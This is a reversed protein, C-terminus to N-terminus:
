KQHNQHADAAPAKAGSQSMDHGAPMGADAKMGAMGQHMKAMDKGCDMKSNMKECCDAKPAPTPAAQAHAVAPIAITLAIATLLKKM